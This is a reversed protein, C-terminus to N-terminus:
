VPTEQIAAPNKVFQAILSAHLNIYGNHLITHFNRLFDFIPSNNSVVIRNRTIYGFSIFNLDQLSIEVGMNKVTHNMIALIHFDM